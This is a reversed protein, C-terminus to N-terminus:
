RLKSGNAVKKSPHLLATGDEDGTALMMGQSEYGRLMRSELNTVIPIQKGVLDSPNPFSEAIGAMIQRSEDGLDVQLKILKDGEPIKEASTVTGIRIDLKLFDDINIMQGNYCFPIKNEWWTYLM